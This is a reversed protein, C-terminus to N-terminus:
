PLFCIHRLNEQFKLERVGSRYTQHAIHAM